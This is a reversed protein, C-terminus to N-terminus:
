LWGIVFTHISRKFRLYESLQIGCIFIDSATNDLPADKKQNQNIDYSDYKLAHFRNIMMEM